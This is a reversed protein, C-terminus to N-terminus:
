ECIGGSCDFKLQYFQQVNSFDAIVKTSPSEMKKLIQGIHTINESIDQIFEHPIGSCDDKVCYTNTFRHLQFSLDYVTENATSKKLLRQIYYSNNSLDNTSPDDLQEQLDSALDRCGNTVVYLLSQSFGENVTLKFYLVYICYLLVLVLCLIFLSLAVLVTDKHRFYPSSSKM